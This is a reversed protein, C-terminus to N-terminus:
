VVPAALAVRSGSQVQRVAQGLLAIGPEVDRREVRSVSLRVNSRDEGRPDFDQGPAVAVGLAAAAEAVRRGSVGEPLHLWFLPNSGEGGWWSVGPLHEALAAAAASARLAVEEARNARAKRDAGARLFAAVAAQLPVPTQFDTARKMRALREVIPRAAAIWGIRFGPVLDKSLTGLWVTRDLERAALPLRGPEPEEYGDEIVLAGASVAAELMAARRPESTTIGTPNQREPMVYVLKAGRSLLPRPDPGQEDMPLSLVSVGSLRALTLAGSYTPSEVAVVDDPDTFTRFLLDLGQQAGSVILIEEASRLVGIESLRRSVESRLEELGLPPAYQWLERRRSWAYALTRTFEELPFFREDPALRSFDAVWPAKASLPTEDFLEAARRSLLDEIRLPKDAAVRRGRVVTGSGVRGAVLGSEQLRRYATQVSGRNIGLAAALERTTPLRTNELLTGASIWREIASYVQDALPPGADRDISISALDLQGAM